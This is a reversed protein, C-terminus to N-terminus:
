VRVEWSPSAGGPARAQLVPDVEERFFAEVQQPARGVYRSPDLLEQIRPRVAAFAEDAALRELLDSRSAGARRAATSEMAHARIQEHLEQRDGGQRVALMLIEESAMNPLEEDVRRRIVAPYVKMGLVVANALVLIADTALFAQPISIRRNASDDLTREFWQTAQIWAANQGDCIVYKALSSIRELRMPNQKYPMASSGVQKEEFSETLEGFGQLIRADNTFKHASQAIGSLAHLVLDDVKRTYTQGTIRFAERFGMKRTVRRDLEEVKAGDGDFLKLFSDQTGTTGKAGRFRLGEVRSTVEHYDLLFDQAWLAARKGVTTLQAPQLHTYALAPLAKHELAFRRFAELLHALKERLIELGRRMLILDTNDTVYCSTAGLHIIPKASPCLEGFAVIHAMVDHRLERELKAVREYDIAQANRRMEEIQAQTIPLGLESQAEALAIWLERWTRYRRNSSFNQLMEDSAYREGLPDQYTDRPDVM